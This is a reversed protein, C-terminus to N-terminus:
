LDSMEIHMVENRSDLRSDVEHSERGSEYSMMIMDHEDEDEEGSEGDM